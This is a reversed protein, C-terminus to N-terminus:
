IKGLIKRTVEPYSGNEDLWIDVFLKALKKDQIKGVLNQNLFILVGKNPTFLAIKEDGKKVSNLSKNLEEFYFKEESDKLTHLKKIEDISRQVLDEKSFSMSYTIQIAFKKNYSFNTAESWLSIQYVKFGLFKLESSGILFQQTFNEKLTQPAKIALQDISAKSQLPFFSIAIFIASFILKKM